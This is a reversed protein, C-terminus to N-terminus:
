GSHPGWQGPARTNTKQGELEEKEEEERGPQGKILTLCSVGTFFYGPIVCVVTWPFLPVNYCPDGVETGIDGQSGLSGKYRKKDM